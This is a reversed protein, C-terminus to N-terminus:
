LRLQSDCSSPVKLLIGALPQGYGDFRAALEATTHDRINPTESVLLGLKAAQEALPGLYMEIEGPYDGATSFLIAIAGGPKLVRRSEKMVAVRLNKQEALHAKIDSKKFPPVGNKERMRNINSLVSELGERRVNSELLWPFNKIIIIDYTADAFPMDQALGIHLREKHSPDQLMERSDLYDCDSCLPSDWPGIELGRLPTPAGGSLDSAIASAAQPGVWLFSASYPEAASGHVSFLLSILFIGSSVSKMLAEYWLLYRM